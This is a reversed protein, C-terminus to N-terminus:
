RRRFIVSPINNSYDIEKKSKNKPKNKEKQLFLLYAEMRLDDDIVEENLYKEGTVLGSYLSYYTTLYHLFWIQAESLDERNKFLRIIGSEKAQGYLFQYKNSKAIKRLLKLNM